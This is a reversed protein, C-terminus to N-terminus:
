VIEEETAEEDVDRIEMRTCDTLKTCITEDGIARTIAKSLEETDTTKRNLVVRLHGSRTESVASISDGLSQVEKGNKIKKFMESYNMDGAKVIFVDPRTRPELRKREMKKKQMSKNKVTEWKADPELNNIAPQQHGQNPQIDNVVAADATTPQTRQKNQKRRPGEPVKSSTSQDPPHVDLTTRQQQQHQMQQSLEALTEGQKEMMTRLKNIAARSEELASM